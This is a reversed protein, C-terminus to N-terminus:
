KLTQYYKQDSEMLYSSPVSPVYPTEDPTEQFIGFMPVALADNQNLPDLGLVIELTRLLSLQDYRDCQSAVWDGNPRSRQNKKLSTRRQKRHEM